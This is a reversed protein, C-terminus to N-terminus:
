LMNTGGWKEGMSAVLQDTLNTTKVKQQLQIKTSNQQGVKKKFKFCVHMSSCIYDKTNILEYSSNFQCISIPHFHCVLFRFSFLSFKFIFSNDPQESRFDKEILYMWVLCHQFNFTNCKNQSLGYLFRFGVIDIRLLSKGIIGPDTEYMCHSCIQFM